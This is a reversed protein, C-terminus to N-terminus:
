QQRRRLGATSDMVRLVMDTSNLVTDAPSLPRGDTYWGQMGKGPGANEKPNSNLLRVAENLVGLDMALDEPLEAGTADAEEAAAEAPMLRAVTELFLRHRTDQSESDPWYKNVKAGSLTVLAGDVQGITGVQERKPRGFAM